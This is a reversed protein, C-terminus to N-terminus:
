HLVRVCADVWEIEEITDDGPHFVLMLDLNEAIEHQCLENNKVGFLRQSAQIGDGLTESRNQRELRLLARDFLLDLLRRLSAFTHELHCHQNMMCKWNSRSARPIQLPLCPFAVPVPHPFFEFRLKRNHLVLHLTLSRLSILPVARM